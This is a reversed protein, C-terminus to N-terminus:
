LNPDQLITYLNTVINSKMTELQTTFTSIDVKGDLRTVLENFMEKVRVDLKKEFVLYKGNADENLVFMLQDETSVTVDTTGGNGDTPVTLTFEKDFITKGTADVGEVEVVYRKGVTSFGLAVASPLSGISGISGNVGATYLKEIRNFNEVGIKALQQLTLFKADTYDKSLQLANGAKTTADTAATNIAATQASNAKGTADIAAANIAAQQAEAAVTDAYNQAAAYANNAKTTADAAAAAIAESKALNAKTTADSAAADIAQAKALNAKATADAAAASIAAAQAANAKQTADASAAAIAAAQAANAKSTADSAAASIAESKATNAKQTAFSQLDTIATQLLDYLKNAAFTFQAAIAALLQMIANM